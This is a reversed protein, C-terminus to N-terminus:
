AQWTLGITCVYMCRCSCLLGCITNCCRGTLVLASDAVESFDPTLGQPLEKLLLLYAKMACKWIHKLANHKYFTCGHTRFIHWIAVLASLHLKRLPQLSLTSASNTGSFPHFAGLQWVSKTHPMCCMLTESYSDLSATYSVCISWHQSTLCPVFTSQLITQGSHSYPSASFFVTHHLLDAVSRWSPSIFLSFLAM